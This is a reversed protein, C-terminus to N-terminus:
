PTILNGLFCTCNIGKIHLLISFTTVLEYLCFVLDGGWLFLISNHVRSGVDKIWGIRCPLM